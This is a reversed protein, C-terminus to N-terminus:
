RKYYLLSKNHHVAKKSIHHAYFCTTKRHCAYKKFALKVLVLFCLLVIFVSLCHKGNESFPLGHLAYKCNGEFIQKTKVKFKLFKAIDGFAVRPNNRAM